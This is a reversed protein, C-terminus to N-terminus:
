NPWNAAQLRRRPSRAWSWLPVSASLITDKPGKPRGAPLGSRDQPPDGTPAM